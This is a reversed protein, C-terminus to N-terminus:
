NGLQYLAQRIENLTEERSESSDTAGIEDAYQICKSYTARADANLGCAAQLGGMV